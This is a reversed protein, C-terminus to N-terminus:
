FEMENNNDIEREADPFRRPRILNRFLWRKKAKPETRAMSPARERCPLGEGNLNSRVLYEMLNMQGRAAARSADRMDNESIKTLDLDYGANLALQGVFARQTRGNGERFPHIRNLRDITSALGKVTQERPMGRFYDKDQIDKFLVDLETGIRDVDAFDSTGKYINIERFEGAWDYVDGFIYKHLARLHEKDFKGTVGQNQLQGARLNTSEREAAELKRSDTIGFKNKLVNTGPYVYHDYNMDADGRLGVCGLWTNTRRSKM